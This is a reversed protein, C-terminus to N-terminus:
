SGQVLAAKGALDMGIWAEALRDWNDGLRQQLVDLGQEVAKHMRNGKVETTLIIIRKSHTKFTNKSIFLIEQLIVNRGLQNELCFVLLCQAQKPSLDFEQELVKKAREFLADISVPPLATPRKSRALAYELKWLQEAVLLSFNKVYGRVTSVARHVQAALTAQACGGLFYDEWVAHYEEPLNEVAYSIIATVYVADPADDFDQVLEPLCTELSTRLTSSAARNGSDGKVTSREHECFDQIADVLEQIKENKDGM